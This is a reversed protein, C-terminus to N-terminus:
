IEVYQVEISPSINQLEQRLLFTLLSGTMNFCTIMADPLGYNELTPDFYVDFYATWKDFEGMLNDSLGLSNIDVEAQKHWIGSATYDAMVQYETSEVM